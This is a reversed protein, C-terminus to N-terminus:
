WKRFSLSIIGLDSFVEKAISVVAPDLLVPNIMAVTYKELQGGMVSLNAALL